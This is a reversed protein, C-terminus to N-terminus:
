NCIIDFLKISLSVFEVHCTVISAINPVDAVITRCDTLLAGRSEARARTAAPAESSEIVRLGNVQSIQICKRTSSLVITVTGLIHFYIM